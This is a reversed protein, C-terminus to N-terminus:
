AEPPLLRDRAVEIVLEILDGTIPWGAPGESIIGQDAAQMIGTQLDSALIPDEIGPDKAARQLKKLASAPPGGNPGSLRNVGFVANKEVTRLDSGDLKLSGTVSGDEAVASVLLVEDGEPGIALDGIAPTLDGGKGAFLPGAADGTAGELTTRTREYDVGEGLLRALPALHEEDISHLRLYVTLVCAKPLVRLAARKAAAAGEFATIGGGAPCLILTCDGKAPKWELPRVGDSNEGFARQFAGVAGPIFVEIERAQEITTITHLIELDLLLSGTETGSTQRLKLGRGLRGTGVTIEEDLNPLRQGPTAATM